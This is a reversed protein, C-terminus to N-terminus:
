PNREQACASEFSDVSAITTIVTAVQSKEKTGKAGKEPRNRCLDITCINGGIVTVCLACNQQM